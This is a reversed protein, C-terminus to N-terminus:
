RESGYTKRLDDYSDVAQELRGCLDDYDYLGDDNAQLGELWINTSGFSSTGQLPMYGLIQDSTQYLLRMCGYTAGEENVWKEFCLLSGIPATQEISDELHYDKAGLAGLVSYINSDHGCLFTVKRGQAHLESEIESLLPHAYNIAALPATLLIRHYVDKVKAIAQWQEVTLEKNFAASSDRLEYLQMVLADAIKNAINISGEIAIGGGPNFTVLTDSTSLEGLEGRKFAPSLRYDIVDMLLNFSDELDSALGAMGMAGGMQTIQEVVAKRYEESQYTIKTRFTSDAKGFKVKTEIHYNASPLLGCMFAQASAFTRQRGNAYVRLEKNQPQWNSVILGEDELWGRVYQGLAVELMTGRSTLSGPEGAWSMWEHPSVDDLTSDASELPLRANHRGLIVIQELSYDQGPGHPNPLGVQQEVERRQTSQLGDVVSAQQMCGALLLCQILGLVAFLRFAKRTGVMTATKKCM